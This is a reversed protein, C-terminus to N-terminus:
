FNENRSTSVTKKLKKLCQKLHFCNKPGTFGYKEVFGENHSTSVSKQNIVFRASKNLAKRQQHFGNKFILQLGIKLSTCKEEEYFDNEQIKTSIGALSLLKKLSTTVLNEDFGENRSTYVSKPNIEFQTSKNWSEKEQQHFANNM